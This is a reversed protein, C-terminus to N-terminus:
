EIKRDTANNGLYTEGVYIRLYIERGYKIQKCSCYRLYMTNLTLIKVNALFKVNEINQFAIAVRM